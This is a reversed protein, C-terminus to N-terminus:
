LTGQSDLNWKQELIEKAEKLKCEQLASIVAKRTAERGCKSRWSKLVKIAQLRFDTTDALREAAEIENSEM